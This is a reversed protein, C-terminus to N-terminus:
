EIEEESMIINIKKEIEKITAEPTSAGATIGIKEKNEFYKIKLEEKSQILYTNLNHKKSLEYLKKTNSSKKDGVVIMVEVEKSLQDTSKQREYTAGCITDGTEIEPYESKIKDEIINKIKNSFTTQFLLFYKKNNKIEKINKFFEKENEYIKVDQIAYSVIGLVEPHKKDGIFIIKKGEKEKKQLLERSKKVFICAADYIKVKKTKLKEYIEKRTGHARVIVIDSAKLNSIGDENLFKIGKKKLDEIVRSNHVLMGFMYINSKKHKELINESLEIAQKVGFCFGMKSAKYIM